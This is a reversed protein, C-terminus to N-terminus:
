STVLGAAECRERIWAPVPLARMRGSADLACFARTERGECILTDGRMVRHSQIFVKPRWEEVATHFQLVDPHTAPEVFRIHFEVLPTGLLGPPDTVHNWSPVGCEHFYHQSAADMWRSFNRFLVINAPGCDGFQVHVTYATTTNM